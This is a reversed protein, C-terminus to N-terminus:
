VFVMTPPFLGNEADCLTVAGTPSGVSVPTCAVLGVAPVAVAMGGGPADYVLYVNVATGRLPPPDGMVTFLLLGAAAMGPKVGPVCARM